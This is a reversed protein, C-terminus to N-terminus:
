WPASNRVLALPWVQRILLGSVHGCGVLAASVDSFRALAGDGRSGIRVQCSGSSTQTSRCPFLAARMGEQERAGVVLPRRARARRPRDRAHLARLRDLRLGQPAAPQDPRRQRRLRSGSRASWDFLPNLKILDANPTSRFVGNRRSLPSTAACAPSGPKRAPWLARNLPEIKRVHCCALRAGHSTSATSAKSRSLAELDDHRPYIARIRRGYRRETEGLITPEPFLRGTDLTM